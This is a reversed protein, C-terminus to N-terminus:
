KIVSPPNYDSAYSNKSWDKYSLMEDNGQLWLHLCSIAYNMGNEEGLAMGTELRNLNGRNLNNHGEVEIQGILKYLEDSNIKQRKTKM